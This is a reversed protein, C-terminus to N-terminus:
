QDNNRNQAIRELYKNDTISSVKELYKKKIQETRKKGYAYGGLSGAAAAGAGSALALRAIRPVANKMAKNGATIASKMSKHPDKPTNHVVHAEVKDAIKRARTYASYGGIGTGAIAGYAAGKKAGKKRNSKRITPIKLRDKITLQETM